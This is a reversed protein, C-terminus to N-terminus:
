EVAQSADRMKKLRNLVRTNMKDYNKYDHSYYMNNQVVTVSDIGFRNKIYQYTDIIDGGSTRSQSEAGQLIAMEFLIEELEDESLLRDPKPAENKTCSFVFFLVSLFFLKRM